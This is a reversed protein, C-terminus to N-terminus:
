ININILIDLIIDFLKVFRARERLLSNTKEGEEDRHTYNEGRFHQAYDPRENPLFNAIILDSSETSFIKFRSAIENRRIGQLIATCTPIYLSRKVAVTSAVPKAEAIPRRQCTM